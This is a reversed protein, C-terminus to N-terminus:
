PNGPTWETVVGDNTIYYISVNSSGQQLNLNGGTGQRVLKYIANLVENKNNNSEYQNGLRVVINVTNNTQGVIGITFGDDRRPPVTFFCVNAGRLPESTNLQSIIVHPDTVQRISPFLTKTILAVVSFFKSLRAKSLQYQNHINKLNLDNGMGTMRQIVTKDVLWLLKVVAQAMANRVPLYAGQKIQKILESINEENVELYYLRHGQNSIPAVVDIITFKNKGRRNLWDRLGKAFESHKFRFKGNAESGNEESDTQLGSVEGLGESEGSVSRKLEPLRALGEVVSFVPLGDIVHHQNCLLTVSSVQYAGYNEENQNPNTQPSNDVECLIVTNFTRRLREIIKQSIIKGKNYYVVITERTQNSNRRTSVKDTLSNLEGVSVPRIKNKPDHHYVFNPDISAFLKWVHPNTGFGVQDGPSRDDTDQVSPDNNSDKSGMLNRRNWNEYSSSRIQNLYTIIDNLTVSVGIQYRVEFGFNNNPDNQEDACLQTTVPDPLDPIQPIIRDLGVLIETVIRAVPGMGGIREKSSFHM